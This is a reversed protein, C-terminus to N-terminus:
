RRSRQRRRDGRQRRRGHRRLDFRAVHYAHPAIPARAIGRRRTACFCHDAGTRRRGRRQDHVRFQIPAAIALAKVIPTITALATAAVTVIMRDAGFPSPASWGFAADRQNWPTLRDIQARVVGDLFENARRPLELPRFVFRSTQLVVEIQSGALLARTKASMPGVFAGEEIRLPAGLSRKNATQVLFDGDSQEVLRIKRSFRVIGSIRLLASAVDDIWRSLWAIIPQLANM